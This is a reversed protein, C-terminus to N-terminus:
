DDIGTELGNWGFHYRRTSLCIGPGTPHFQVSGLYIFITGRRVYDGNGQSVEQVRQIRTEFVGNLEGQDIGSLIVQLCKDVSGRWCRSNTRTKREGYFLDFDSLGSWTFLTSTANPAHWTRRALGNFGSKYSSLLQWSSGCTNKSAARKKSSLNSTRTSYTRKDCFLAIWKPIMQSDTSLMSTARIGYLGRCLSKATIILDRRQSSM